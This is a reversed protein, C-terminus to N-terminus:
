AASAESAHVALAVSHAEGPQTVAQLLVFCQHSRQHRQIELAQGQGARCGLHPGAGGAGVRAQEQHTREPRLDFREHRDQLAGPCRQAFLGPRQAAGGGADPPDSVPERPVRSCRRPPGAIAHRAVPVAPWAADSVLM